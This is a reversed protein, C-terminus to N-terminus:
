RLTPRSRGVADALRDAVAGVWGWAPGGGRGGLWTLTSTNSPSLPILLRAAAPTAQVWTGLLLTKAPLTNWGTSLPTWRMAGISVTLHAWLSHTQVVKRRPECRRM